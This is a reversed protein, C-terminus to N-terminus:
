RIYGDAPPYLDDPGSSMRKLFRGLRDEVAIMYTYPVRVSSDPHKRNKLKLNSILTNFNNNAAQAMMVGKFYSFYYWTSADAKLYIDILDGSRRRQIEVFGDVYINVPQNGIFGIGIRGKSRFSSSAENWRLNVENLLLEYNYEKPLNGSLGFLDTEEKLRTAAGSGLLDKMGKNLFESNMNVPKLSPMMRIEDSMIKLADASFYFDLALIAKIDVKGSDMTQIFSGASGLRVLDFDSGFNLNGEGALTCLNKDLSVINGNLAPDAIKEVSSIQYTNKKKNYYLVGSPNILGVDSWSKQQSLFAPYILASDLNLYSGSYVPNDNVDRLKDGIPIMVNKPDILSKFKVPYSKIRDCDHVIGAAGTFLLQSSRASLFVDGSFTFAPSLMFKQNASIFGKATTTLTDVTVEPFSIQEIENAEDVYDYVASGSYRKTSEINIDASHLLHRNNVAIYANTLKDIRARRNITIKGNEPQILADAIPIYSINEAEIYEKDVNYRAKLSTFSITDSLNNTSFFTPATIESRTIRLLKEPPILGPTTNRGRLEMGLIRNNMDYEFDTMTCIYQIEPFKVVSSGTNLHFRSVKSDFNIDINANEAIFAYGSTSPSKFNYDATDARIASATFTFLNSNIRSDPTNIIGTGNLRSPSLKISGDLLTGNEFMDFNKGAANYALWEDKWPIWKIRVDEGNLDPFIGSGNNDINFTVAQTLMSDPFFKFDESITTSTLHKLTGVGALGKNSMKIQNYFRGKGDYIEIGEAPTNMQFGLSNNEQITLFQRMPKLVRGAYFEGSLNFDAQSYHDLNEFAFPDIKFYFDKQKYVGNLGPIRDYFIYSASTSNIIPYQLLGKLGSKNDPDDIYLEGTSLQILSNLERIVPNGYADYKDTEMAVKISDIKHLRIMFTDYSFQFNHGFVTFLGARVVGDFNISRNKQVTLKRDYPFIAVKQSDSLFVSRVGNITLGYNDIDLIANDLPAKTESYISLIDYDKKGTFSDIFDKTKAKITVEQNTRDYFVFGKNAMDICLGTVVEVPKDLWKAFESIPFTESYYWESFRMLRTLPHYDDLNMLNLFYDSNFFSVSQFLAEGLAAGRPRSIIISSSNMNWSLSEFYMDLNHYTNYYPSGSVPNNTKFLSIQRSNSNYSFGLNTHFISDKQLYITASTEQANLGSASFVFETSAIKIFLSDKRFLDIRAPSAKEGKGKVNVGEFALGGEYNIEKYINNIRFNKIYTEFRPFTSKERTSSTAQDNLVGYVPEKFYTRHTLRASDVTFSSRTTNITFKELEAFVDSRAYGAKEWTVIGKTGRFQQIFPYFIGTANYIETSDKQAICTLTADRFIAKFVTDYVYEPKADSVKWSVSGSAYLISESILLNTNQFYRLFSDNTLESRVFMEDLGTLWDKILNVNDYDSMSVLTKMFQSFHPVARMQRRVLKNSVDIIITKNEQSFGASDWKTLFSNLNGSNEENLNVGMFATLEQRFKDPDGSFLPKVQPYIEAASLSFISFFLILLKRIM